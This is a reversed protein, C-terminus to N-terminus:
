IVLVVDYTALGVVEAVPYFWCALILISMWSVEVGKKLERREVKSGRNCSELETAYLKRFGACDDERSDDGVKYKVFVFLRHHLDSNRSLEIYCDRNIKERQCVRLSTENAPSEASLQAVLGRFHVGSLNLRISLSPDSCSVNSSNAPSQVCNLVSEICSTKHSKSPQSGQNQTRLPIVGILKFTCNRPSSSTLLLNSYPSSSSFQKVDISHFCAIAIFFASRLMDDLNFFHNRVRVTLKQPNDSRIISIQCHKFTKEHRCIRLKAANIPTEPDLQSMVGPLKVASITLRIMAAPDTCSVDCPPQGSQVCSLNSEVCVLQQQQHQINARPIVSVNLSTWTDFTCDRAYASQLQISKYLDPFAGSYIRTPNQAEIFSLSTVLLVVFKFCM